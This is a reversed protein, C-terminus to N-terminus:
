VVTVSGAQIRLVGFEHQPEDTFHSQGVVVSVGVSFSVRTVLIVGTLLEPSILGVTKWDFLLSGIYCVIFKICSTKPLLLLPLLFIVCFFCLTAPFYYDSM